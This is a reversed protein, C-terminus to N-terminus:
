DVRFSWFLEVFTRRFKIADISGNPGTFLILLTKGKKEEYCAIGPSVTGM